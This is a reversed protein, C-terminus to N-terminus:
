DDLLGDVFREPAQSVRDVNHAYVMTTTLNTHRALAQAQQLSAGGLLAFTVASHRFSHTTLRESDLGAARLAEKAIQRISRTSLPKGYPKNSLSAFLPSDEGVVERGECRRAALYDYIPGLTADTLVVLADKEVRGKGQVLLITQDGRNRLDGLRGRTVEVSRLGVRILLNVLAFDRKAQLTDGKLVQLVRKAQAPTLADKRHINGVLKVTKIDAAVNPYARVSELWKFLSKVATLYTSATSPRVRALMDQKYALIHSRDLDAIEREEKWAFFGRLTRRYTEKTTEALEAEVLFRELLMEVDASLAVPSSPQQTATILQNQTENGNGPINQVDHVVKKIIKM